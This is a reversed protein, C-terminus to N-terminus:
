GRGTACATVNKRLAPGQRLLTLLGVAFVALGLSGPEPTTTVQILGPVGCYDDPCDGATRSFLGVTDMFKVGWTPVSLITVKTSGNVYPGGGAGTVFGGAVNRSLATTASVTQTATDWFFTFAPLNNEGDLFMSMGLYAPTIQGLLGDGCYTFSSIGLGLLINISAGPGNGNNVGVGNFGVWLNANPDPLGLTNWFQPGGTAAGLSNTEYVVLGTIAVAFSPVATLGALLFLPLTRM